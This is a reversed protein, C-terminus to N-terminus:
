GEPYYVGTEPDQRLRTVARPQAPRAVKVKAASSTLQLIKRVTLVTLVCAVVITVLKLM